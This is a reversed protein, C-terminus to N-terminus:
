KTSGIYQLVAGTMESTSVAEQNGYVLDATRIGSDLAKNIANLIDRAEDEMHFAYKLMMATSAITALPNALGKGAIDPASGHIPEYIGPGDASLSASPL